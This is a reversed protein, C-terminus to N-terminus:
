SATPGKTLAPQGASRRPGQARELRSLLLHPPPHCLISPPVWPALGSDARTPSLFQLAQAQPGFSFVAKGCAGRGGM